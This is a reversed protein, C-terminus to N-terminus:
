RLCSGSCRRSRVATRLRRWASLRVCRCSAARRRRQRCAFAAGAFGFAFFFFEFADALEPESSSAQSADALSCRRRRLRLQFSVGGREARPSVLESSALAEYSAGDPALWSRYLVIAEAAFSLQPTAPLPQELSVRRPRSRDVAGGISVERARRAGLSGGRVRALTVHPRFRRREPQWASAERAGRQRARARAAAARRPRPDRGRARAPAAAPAVAAGRGVARVRRRHLACRRALAEIEGVPRNGLFCLTLHLSQADLLRLSGRPRGRRAGRRGRRTGVRATSRVGVCAPRGGRVAQATAGRSM